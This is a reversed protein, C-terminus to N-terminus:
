MHSLGVMLMAEKVPSESLKTRAASPLVVPEDLGIGHHSAGPM